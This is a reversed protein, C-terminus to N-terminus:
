PLRTLGGGATGEPLPLGLGARVDVALTCGDIGSAYEARAEASLWSPDVRRRLRFLLKQAVLDVLGVRVQRPREGDLETPGPRDPEEDMAFLLLAARAARKAAELPAREFNLRLRELERPEEAAQLRAQFSSGLFPLGAFAAHLREVHATATGMRKGGAYALRAKGLLSKETRASPPEALCLVFADKFSAGATKETATDGAFGSLPGRVYVTPRTLAAAVADPGRLEEAVLDGAYAGLARDLWPQVREPLAKEDRGLSMAERRVHALLEAREAELQGVARQRALVLWSVAGAITALVALRLLSLSRPALVAGAAARRGSVSAAVRAALAPSMKRTVLLTPM